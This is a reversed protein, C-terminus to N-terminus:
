HLTFITLFLILVTIPVQHCSNIEALMLNIAPFSMMFKDQHELIAARLPCYFRSALALSRLNFVRWYRNNDNQAM